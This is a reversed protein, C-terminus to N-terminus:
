AFHRCIGTQRTARRGLKAVAESGAMDSGSVQYGRQALMQALGSMGCGGVGVFHYSSYRLPRKRNPAVVELQEGTRTRTRKADWMAMAAIQEEDSTTLRM